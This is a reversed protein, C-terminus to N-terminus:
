KWPSNHQTTGNTVNGFTPNIVRVQCSLFALPAKVMPVEKKKRMEYSLDEIMTNNQKTTKLTFLRPADIECKIDSQQLIVSITQQSCTLLGNIKGRM